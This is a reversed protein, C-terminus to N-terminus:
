IYNYIQGIQTKKLFFFHLSLKVIPTVIESLLSLFKVFRVAIEIARFSFNDSSKEFLLFSFCSLFLFYKRGNLNILVNGTYGIM